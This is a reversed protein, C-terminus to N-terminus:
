QATVLWPIKCREIIEDSLYAKRIESSSFYAEGYECAIGLVCLTGNTSYETLWPYQGPRYPVRVMGGPPGILFNKLEMWARFDRAKSSIYLDPIGSGTGGSEIAQVSFGQARLKSSLARRYLAETAYM